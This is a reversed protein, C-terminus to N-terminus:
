TKKTAFYKRIKKNLFMCEETTQQPSKQKRKYMKM